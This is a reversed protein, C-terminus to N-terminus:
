YALPPQVRHSDRAAAALLEQRMAPSAALLARNFERANRRARMRDAFKRTTSM